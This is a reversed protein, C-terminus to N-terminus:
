VKKPKCFGRAVSEIQRREWVQGKVWLCWKESLAYINFDGEGTGGQKVMSIFGRALLQDIARTIRPQTVKYKKRLEAYSLRINDSNQCLYKKKRRKFFRKDLLHILLQPSFGTLSNFAKSQYMEREIFIGGAM